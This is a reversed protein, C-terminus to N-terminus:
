YQTASDSLEESTQSALGEEEDNVCLDAGNELM